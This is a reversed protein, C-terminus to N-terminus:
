FLLLIINKSINAGLTPKMQDWLTTRLGHSNIMGSRKIDLARGIGINWRQNHKKYAVYIIIIASKLM